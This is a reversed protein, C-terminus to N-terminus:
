FGPEVDLAEPGLPLHQTLGRGQGEGLKRHARAMGPMGQAQLGIAGNEGKNDCARKQM